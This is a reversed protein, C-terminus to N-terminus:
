FHDQQEEKYVISPNVTMNSERKDNVINEEESSDYPLIIRSIKKKSHVCNQRVKM